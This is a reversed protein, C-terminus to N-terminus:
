RFIIELTAESTPLVTAVFTYIDFPVAKFAVLQVKINIYYIEKPVDM